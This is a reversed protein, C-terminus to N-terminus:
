DRRRRLPLVALSFLLLAVAPEPVAVLTLSDSYRYGSQADYQDLGVLAVHGYPVKDVSDYIVPDVVWGVVTGQLVFSCYDDVWCANVGIGPKGVLIEQSFIVRGGDTALTIAEAASENLLLTVQVSRDPTQSQVGAWFSSCSLKTLPVAEKTESSTNAFFELTVTTQAGFVNIPVNIPDTGDTDVELHCGEMLRYEQTDSEPKPLASVKVTGTVEKYDAVDKEEGSEAACVFSGLLLIFLLLRMSGNMGNKKTKYLLFM